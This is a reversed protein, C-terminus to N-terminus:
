DVCGCPTRCWVAWLWMRLLWTEIWAGVRPAVPRPRRLLAPLHKLGRVWVPHSPPQTACSPSHPTEIWAGVRPAVAKVFNSGNPLPTEIWAGVRPAVRIPRSHSRHQRQKLGRVWVPHSMQLTACYKLFRTEIWAGVRPAVHIPWSHSRHQWQKLGRVWVPHSGIQKVALQQWFLKLGRVWVPHSM